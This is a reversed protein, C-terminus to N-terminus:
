KHTLFPRRTVVQRSQSILYNTHYDSSIYKTKGVIADNKTQLDKRRHKADEYLHCDQGEAMDPVRANLLEGGTAELKKQLFPSNSNISDNFLPNEDDYILSVHM